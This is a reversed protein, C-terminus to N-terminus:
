LKSVLHMSIPLTFLIFSCRNDITIYLMISFCPFVLWLSVISSAKTWQSSPYTDSPDMRQRPYANQCPSYYGRPKHSNKKTKLCFYRQEDTGVKCVHGDRFDMCDHSSAKSGYCACHQSGEYGKPHPVTLM